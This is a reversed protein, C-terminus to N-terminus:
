LFRQKRKLIRALPTIFREKWIKKQEPTGANEYVKEAIPIALQLQRIMKEKKAGIHFSNKSPYYFYLPLNNITAKNIHLLVEGWWPVDQFNIGPYFSIGAIMSARYMNRWVQCHKARFRNDIEPLKEHSSNTAYAFINDTTVYEVKEKDYKKFDPRYDPLNLLHLIKTTNRYLHSYRFIVVDSKDRLAQYVCIEVLQPHIFDDSDVFIAYEGKMAALSTNRAVSLGQNKQNIVKFRVDKTCYEDLIQASNDPSGDNVCICEWNSYTQNIISDLCRPLEKETKYIPILISVLPTNSM